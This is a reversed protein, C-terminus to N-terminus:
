FLHFSAYAGRRTSKNNESILRSFVSSFSYLILSIGFMSNKVLDSQLSMTSSVQEIQKNISLSLEIPSM